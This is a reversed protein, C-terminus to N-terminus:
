PNLNAGPVDRSAISYSTCKRHVFAGSDRHRQVKQKGLTPIGVGLLLLVRTTHVDPFATM